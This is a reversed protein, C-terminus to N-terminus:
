HMAVKDHCVHTNATAMLVPRMHATNGQQITQLTRMAQPSDRPTPGVWHCEALHHGYATCLSCVRHYHCSEPCHCAGANWSICIPRAYPSAGCASCYQSPRHKSWHPRITRARPALLSGTVLIIGPHLLDSQLHAMGGWCLAFPGALHHQHLGNDTTVDKPSIYQMNCGCLPQLHGPLIDAM